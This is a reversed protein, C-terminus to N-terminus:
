RWFHHLIELEDPEDRCIGIVRSALEKIERKLAHVHAPAVSRM